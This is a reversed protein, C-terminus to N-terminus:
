HNKELGPRNNNLETAQNAIISMGSAPVTCQYDAPHDHIEKIITKTVYKTVVNANQTLAQDLKSSLDHQKTLLQQIQVKYNNADIITQQEIKQQEKLAARDRMDYGLKGGLLILGAIIALILGVKIWFSSFFTTAKSLIGMNNRLIVHYGISSPQM